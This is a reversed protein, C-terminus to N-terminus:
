SRLECRAAVLHAALDAADQLLLFVHFSLFAELMEDALVDDPRAPLMRRIRTIRERCALLKKLLLESV